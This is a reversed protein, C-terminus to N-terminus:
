NLTHLYITHIHTHITVYRMMGNRDASTSQTGPDSSPMSEVKVQTSDLVHRIVMVNQYRLAQLIKLILCIHM